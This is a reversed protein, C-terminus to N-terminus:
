RFTYSRRWMTCGRRSHNIVFCKRLHSQFLKWLFKSISTVTDLTIFSAWPVASFSRRFQLRSSSSSRISRKEHEISCWSIPFAKKKSILRGVVVVGFFADYFDRLCRVLPKQLPESTAKRQKHRGGYFWITSVQKRLWNHIKRRVRYKDLRRGMHPELAEHGRSSSSKKRKRWRPGSCMDYHAYFTELWCLLFCCSSHPGGLHVEPTTVFKTTSSKKWECLLFRERSDDLCSGPSIGSEM